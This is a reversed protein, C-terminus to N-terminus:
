RPAPFALVRAPEDPPPLEAQRWRMQKLPYPQGRDLWVEVETDREGIVAPSECWNGNVIIRAISHPPVAFRSIGQADTCAGWSKKRLYLRTQLDPIPVGDWHIVRVTLELTASKPIPPDLHPRPSM